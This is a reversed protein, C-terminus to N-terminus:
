VDVKSGWRSSRIMRAREPDTAPKLRVSQNEFSNGTVALNTTDKGEWMRGDIELPPGNLNVGRFFIAEAALLNASTAAFGACALCGLLLSPTRIMHRGSNSSLRRPEM